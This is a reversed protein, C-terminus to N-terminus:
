QQGYPSGLEQRILDLLTTLSLAEQASVQAEQKLFQGGQVSVIPVRFNDSVTEIGRRPDFAVRLLGQWVGVLPCFDRYNGASFAVTKEGVTFQPVGDVALRRGDPMHGGLFELTISEGGADGKLVTLNSFTVETFPAQRAADWREQIGTVTGVAIVDAERVMDPFARALVTTAQASRALLLGGIVVRLVLSKQTPHM